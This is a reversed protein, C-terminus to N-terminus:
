TRIVDRVLPHSLISNVCSCAHLEGAMRVKINGEVDKKVVESFFPNSFADFIRLFMTMASVFPTVQMNNAKGGDSSEGALKFGDIIEVFFQFDRAPAASAM